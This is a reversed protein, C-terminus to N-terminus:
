QSSSCGARGRGTRSWHIVTNLAVYILAQVFGFYWLVFNIHMHIFSHGKALVFWSVPVLLFFGLLVLDRRATEHRTLGKFLACGAVFGILPLFFFRGPIGAVIPTTWKLFYREVVLFSPSKLSAAILPDFSAPDGYTRKMVVLDVITRMGEVIPGGQMGAHLLFAGAFGAVCALLVLSAMGLNGLGSRTSTGFLPGVVFVSCALLAISSLYEYGALSKTFVALAVCALLLGSRLRGRGRYLVAAFLAPCFWLFPSWYLNRAFSVVWPSGAMTLLFVAAFLKDYIRCYLLSLLVLVTALAVANLGQLAALGELGFASHMRSFVLGQIGFQSRYPEFVPRSGSAQPALLDYAYEVDRPYRFEGGRGIYGLHADRKDLSLRDAVIAGVVLAESDRQFTSFEEQNAVDLVNAQFSASLVAAAALGLLLAPIKSKWGAPVENAPPV